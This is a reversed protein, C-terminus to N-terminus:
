NSTRRPPPILDPAIRGGVVQLTFRRKEWPVWAADMIWGNGLFYGAGLVLDVGM